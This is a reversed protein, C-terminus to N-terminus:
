FFTHRAANASDSNPLGNEKASDSNPLGPKKNGSTKPSSFFSSLYTLWSTLWGSNRQPAPLIKM